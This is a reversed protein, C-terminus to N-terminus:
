LKRKHSLQYVLCGMVGCSEEKPPFSPLPAPLVGRAVLQPSSQTESSVNMTGDPHSVSGASSTQHSGTPVGAARAPRPGPLPASPLAEALEGQWSALGADM